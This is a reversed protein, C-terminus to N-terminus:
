PRIGIHSSASYGTEASSRLRETAGVLYFRWGRSTNDECDQGWVNLACHEMDSFGDGSFSSEDEWSRLVESDSIRVDLPSSSRFPGGSFSSVTMEACVGLSSEGAVGASVGMSKSFPSPV